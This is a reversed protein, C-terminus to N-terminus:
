AAPTDTAVPTAGAQAATHHADAMAHLTRVAVLAWMSALLALLGVAAGAFLPAGTQAYLADTGTTLVGVPFTFAWWSVSFPLHIRAARLTLLIALALWYM